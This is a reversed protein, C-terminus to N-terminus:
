CLPDKEIIAKPCYIESCLHGTEFEETNGVGRRCITVQSKGSDAGRGPVQDPIGQRIRGNVKPSVMTEIM